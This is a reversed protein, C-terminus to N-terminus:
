VDDDLQAVEDNFRDVDEDEDVVQKPAPKSAAARYDDKPSPIRGTYGPGDQRM